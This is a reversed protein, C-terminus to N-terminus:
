TSGQALRGVAHFLPKGRDSLANGFEAPFARECMTAPLWVDPGFIASVGLFGPPAVGVVTFAVHNLELTSGIAATAGGFRAKWANYSLVAVAASGPNSDEGPMFFRGLAPSLGLTDFYQKTVFEGFVREPRTDTRLTMVMPPTFAAFGRFSAQQEAYDEFNAYALPWGRRIALLCRICCCRTSSPSYPPTQALAWVWPSCPSLPSSRRKGCAAGAM